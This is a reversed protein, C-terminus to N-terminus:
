QLFYFGVIGLVCLVLVSLSDWGMRLITWDKRELLGWIFISTMVVGLGAAYIIANPVEQFLVDQYILAAPLLLAVDFANSGFINSYALSYNGNRVASTTTSIEPLSTAISLLTFGVFSAGLGTQQALADGATAVAWGGVLVILAFGGFALLLRSWPKKQLKELQEDDKDHNKDDGERSQEEQERIYTQEKEKSSRDKGSTVEAPLWRAQGEAQHSLYLVLLYAAFAIIPGLGITLLGSESNLTTSLGADLSIGVLAAAIVLILGVGQMLVAFDPTFRTLPGKSVLIDIGALVATQIIISGFLNYLALERNGALIATTTTAIEPLGTATSLLLLGLFAKGLQTRQSIADTYRELRTGAYWIAAAAAAFISLNIWIPFNQFSL